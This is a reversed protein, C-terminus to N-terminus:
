SPVVELYSVGPMPLTLELTLGDAGAMRSKSGSSGTQGAM